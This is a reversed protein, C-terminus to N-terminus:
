VSVPFAGYRRPLCTKRGNLAPSTVPSVIPAPRRPAGPHRHSNGLLSGSAGPAGNEEPFSLRHFDGGCLDVGRDPINGAVDVLDQLVDAAGALEAGLQDDERLEAEGAVRGAVEELAGGEDLLVDV